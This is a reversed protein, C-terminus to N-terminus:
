CPEFYHSSVEVEESSSFGLQQLLKPLVVVLSAAAVVWIRVVVLEWLVM